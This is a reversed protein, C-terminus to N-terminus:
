FDGPAVQLCTLGLERWMDVVQQRDDLVVVVNYNHRIHNDFLELKVVRDKRMDGIPRMFLKFDEPDIEVNEVIWKETETRCVETRGSCFLIDYIEALERLITAVPENVRDEHVKSEDYPNRTGMLALTGDIDCIIADPKFENAVYPVLEGSAVPEDAVPLPYPKGEIFKKYMETIVADPVKASGLRMANRRLCEYVPVDTMDWIEFDVKARQALDRLERLARSKLCTEDVVVDIGRALMTKIVADRALVIAKETGEHQTLSRDNGGDVPASTQAIFTGDHAMARLDDRNVRFRTEPSEAVWKKARTTKGSAPLGRTVILQTMELHYCGWIRTRYLNIDLCSM